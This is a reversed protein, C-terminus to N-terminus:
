RQLTPTISQRASQTVPASADGFDFTYSAISDGADPDSSGAGSFHVLLPATGSTPNASLVALPASNGCSANGVLTYAGAPGLNDPMNDPYHNRSRYQCCDANLLCNTAARSRTEWASTPVVITITGDANFTSAPDAAAMTGGTPGVQFIPTTTAGDAPANTMRVTYNTSNPANLYGAM